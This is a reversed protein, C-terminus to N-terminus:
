WICIKYKIWFFEYQEFSSKIKHQEMENTKTEVAFNM